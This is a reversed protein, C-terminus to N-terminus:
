WLRGMTLVCNATKHWRMLNSVDWVICTGAGACGRMTLMELLTIFCVCGITSNRRERVKIETRSAWKSNSICNVGSKAWVTFTFRGVVCFEGGGELVCGTLPPLLPTVRGAGFGFAGCATLITAVFVSLRVAACFAPGPSVM